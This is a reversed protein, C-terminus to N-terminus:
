PKVDEFHMAAFTSNCEWVKKRGKYLKSWGSKIGGTTMLRYPAGQPNVYLLAMGVPRVLRVSGSPKRTDSM